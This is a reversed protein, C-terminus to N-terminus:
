VSGQYLNDKRSGNGMFPLVTRDDMNAIFEKAAEHITDLSTIQITKM